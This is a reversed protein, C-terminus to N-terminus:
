RTEVLLPKFLTLGTDITVPPNGVLKWGVGIACVLLQEALNRWLYFRLKHIRCRGKRMGSKIKIPSVTELKLTKKDFTRTLGSFATLKSVPPKKNEKTEMSQM